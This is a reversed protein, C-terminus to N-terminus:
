WPKIKWGMYFGVAFVAFAAVMPRKKCYATLSEGVDDILHQFDERHEGGIEGSFASFNGVAGSQGAGSKGAPLATKAQNSM